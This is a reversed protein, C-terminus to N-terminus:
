ETYGHTDLYKQIFDRKAHKIHLREKAERCDEILKVANKFNNPHAGYTEIFIRVEQKLEEEASKPEEEPIEMLRRHVVGKKFYGHACEALRFGSVIGVGFCGLLYIGEILVTNGLVFQSL